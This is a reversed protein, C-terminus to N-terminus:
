RSEAELQLLQAFQSKMQLTVGHRFRKGAGDAFSAACASGAM